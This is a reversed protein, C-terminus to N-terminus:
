TNGWKKTFRESWDSLKEATEQSTVKEIYASQWIVGNPTGRLLLLALKLPYTSDSSTNHSLACFM